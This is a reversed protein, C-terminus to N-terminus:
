GADRHSGATMHGPLDASLSERCGQEGRVFFAKCALEKLKCVVCDHMCVGTCEASM